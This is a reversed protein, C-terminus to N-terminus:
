KTARNTMIIHVRDLFYTKELPAREDFVSNEPVTGLEVLWGGGTVGIECKWMGVIGCEWLGVIGCEWLRVNGYHEWAHDCLGGGQLISGWVLALPCVM